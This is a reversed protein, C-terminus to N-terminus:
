NIKYDIEKLKAWKENKIVDGRELLKIMGANAFAFSV